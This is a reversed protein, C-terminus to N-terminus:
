PFHSLHETIQGFNCWSETTFNPGQIGSEWVKAGVRGLSGQRAAGAVTLIYVHAKQVDGKCATRFAPHPKRESQNEM